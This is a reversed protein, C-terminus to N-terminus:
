RYEDCAIEGREFREYVEDCWVNDKIWQVPVGTLAFWRAFTREFSINFVVGGLDFIAANISSTETM